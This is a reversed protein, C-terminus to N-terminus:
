YRPSERYIAPGAYTYGPPNCSNRLWRHPIGGATGTPYIYMRVYGWYAQESAPSVLGAMWFIFRMGPFREQELAVSHMQLIM